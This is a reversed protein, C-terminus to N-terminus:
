ILYKGAERSIWTKGDSGLFVCPYKKDRALRKGQKAGMILLVKAKGDALETSNAIVSVTKIRFSFNAPNKPNVLHHFFKDGLQWKKRTIGSTAIGKNKIAFVIKEEPIEEIAIKWTEGAPNKGAAYLDGGSDVLFNKWSDKKLAKVALDTVYGKAIGSFDMRKNFFVKQKKVKLDKSLPEQIPTLRSPQMERSFNIKKFDERYGIAELIEIIRPDYIGHSERNYYLARKALYVLSNSAKQYVGLKRNIKSLESDPNFRSFIKEQEQYLRKIKELALKAKPKQGDSSLVLQLYVDTGLAKFELQAFPKQSAPM